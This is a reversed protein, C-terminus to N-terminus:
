LSVQPMYQSDAEGREISQPVSMEVEGSVPSHHSSSPQVDNTMVVSGNDGVGLPVKSGYSVPISNSNDTTNSPQAEAATRDIALFSNICEEQVPLAFHQSWSVQDQDHEGYGYPEPRAMPTTSYANDVPGASIQTLTTQLPLGYGQPAPMGIYSAEAVLLRDGPENYLTIEDQYDGPWGFNDYNNLSIASLDTYYLTNNGGFHSFQTGQTPQPAFINCNPYSHVDQITTRSEVSSHDFGSRFVTSTGTGLRVQDFVSIGAWPEMDDSQLWPDLDLAGAGPLLVTDDFPLQDQQPQAM